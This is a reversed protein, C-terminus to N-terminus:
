MFVALYIALFLCPDRMRESTDLFYVLFMLHLLLCGPFCFVHRLKQIYTAILRLLVLKRIDQLFPILLIFSQQISQTSYFSIVWRTIWQGKKRQGRSYVSLNLFYIPFDVPLENIVTDKYLLLKRANEMYFWQFQFTTFPWCQESLILIYYKGPKNSQVFISGRFALIHISHNIIVASCVILPWKWCKSFRPFNSCEWMKKLFSFNRISLILYFVM